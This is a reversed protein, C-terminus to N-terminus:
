ESGRALAARAYNSMLSKESILFRGYQSTYTIMSTRMGSVFERGKQHARKKNKSAWTTSWCGDTRCVTIFQKGDPEVTYTRIM